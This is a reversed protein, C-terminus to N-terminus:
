IGFNVGLTFIVGGNGAFNTAPGLYDIRLGMSYTLGSAARAQFLNAFAGLSLQVVPTPTTGDIGLGFAAGFTDSVYLGLRLLNAASGAAPLRDFGVTLNDIVAFNVGFGAAASLSSDSINFRIPVGFNFSVFQPRPNNANITQALAPMVAIVALLAIILITRKM